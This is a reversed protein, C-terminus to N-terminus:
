TGHVGIALTAVAALLRLLMRLLTDRSTRPRNTRAITSLFSGGAFTLSPRLLDVSLLAGRGSAPALARAYRGCDVARLQLLAALQALRQQVCSVRWWPRLPAALSPVDDDEVARLRRLRHVLGISYRCSSRLPM